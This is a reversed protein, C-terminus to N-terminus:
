GSPRGALNRSRTTRERTTGWLELGRQRADDARPARTRDLHDGRTLDGAPLHHDHVPAFAGVREGPSLDFADRILM